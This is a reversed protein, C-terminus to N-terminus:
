KNDSLGDKELESNQWGDGKDKADNEKKIDTLTNKVPTILNKDVDKWSSEINSELKKRDIEVTGNGHRLNTSYDKMSKLTDLMTSYFSLTSTIKEDKNYAALLQIYSYKGSAFPANVNKSDGWAFLTSDPSVGKANGYLIDISNQLDKEIETYKETKQKKTYNPNEKVKNILTIYDLYNLKDSPKLVEEEDTNSPDISIVKTNDTFNFHYNNVLEALEIQSPETIRKKLSNIDIEGEKTIGENNDKNISPYDKKEYDTNLVKNLSTGKWADKASPLLVGLQNSVSKLIDESKNDSKKEKKFAPNYGIANAKNNMIGSTGLITLLTLASIIKVNHKIM